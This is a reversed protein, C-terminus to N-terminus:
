DEFYRKRNYWYDLWNLGWFARQCHYDRLAFLPDGNRWNLECNFSLCDGVTDDKVVYRLAYVGDKIRDHLKEILVKDFAKVFERLQESLCWTIYQEFVYFKGIPISSLDYNVEGLFM